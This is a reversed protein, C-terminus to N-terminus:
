VGYKVRIQMTLGGGTYAFAADKFKPPGFAGKADRTAGYGEAPIGMWNTDMKGNNNEDHLMSAAYVGPSLGTFECVARRDKIAAKVSAKAKSPDTPFGDGPEAYASCYVFGQDSHLNSVEIRLRGVPAADPHTAPQAASPGHALALFFAGLLASAIRSTSM